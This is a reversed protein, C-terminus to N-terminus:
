PTEWGPEYSCTPFYGHVAGQSSLNVWRGSDPDKYSVRLLTGPKAWHTWTRYVAGAPVLRAIVHSGHNTVWKFRFRVAEDGSSNDFVAYYSPGRCPGVISGAVPNPALPTVKLETTVGLAGTNVDITGESAVEVM